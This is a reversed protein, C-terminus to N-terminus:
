RKSGNRTVLSDRYLTFGLSVYSPLAGSEFASREGFESIPKVAFDVLNSLNKITLNVHELLTNQLQVANGVIVGQFDDLLAQYIENDVTPASFYRYYYVNLIQEGLYTQEDIIQLLDGTGVSM